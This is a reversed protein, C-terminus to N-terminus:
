WNQLLDRRADLYALTPLYNGHTAVQAMYSDPEMELALRDLNNVDASYSYGPFGLYDTRRWLNVWVPQPRPTLVFDGLPIALLETLPIAADSPTHRRSGNSAGNSGAAKLTQVRARTPGDAPPLDKGAWPDAKWFSPAAVGPTGLVEPGFLEPFFRGFYPRLQMGFTLFRIRRALDARGLGALHFLAAVGLVTGLSHTALLVRRHNYEGATGEPELWRIMRDALEPVAREGYCAPGFPHAARPLWAMLDWLLGLPRGKDPTAANGVATGVVALGGLLVTVLIVGQLWQWATAVGDAGLADALAGRVSAWRGGPRRDQWMLALALSATVGIGVTWSVSHLLPEARQMFASMRRQANIEKVFQEESAAIQPTPIVSDRLRLAGALVFFLVVLVALLALVGGFAWFVIPVSIDHARAPLSVDRFLPDGPVTRSEFRGARLYSGVGLTLASALFAAVLLGLFMFVGPAAGHWAAERRRPDRRRMELFPLLVAFGAVVFLAVGGVNAGWGFRDLAGSFALSLGAAGVALVGAAVWENYGARVVCGATALVTLAVLIVTPIIQGGGFAGSLATGPGFVELWLCWGYAAVALVLLIWSWVDRSKTPPADSPPRVSRSWVAVVAASALLHASAVGFVIAPAAGDHPIADWMLIVVVLDVSAAIHLIGTPSNIRRRTWLAPVALPFADARAPARKARRDDSIRTRFRVDTVLGLLAVALVAALPALSLLALRQGRTWAGLADFQGPLASCVRWSGSADPLGFCQVAVLDFAVSAVSATLLLTLGLAFLRVVGGGSGTRLGGERKPDAVFARAWYGANAFGFPAVIFWLLNYVTRWVGKLFTRGATFRDLHGWTYAEVRTPADPDADKVTYFGALQDALPIAGDRAVEVEGVPVGLMEQPPTNRVGHVRLELVECARASPTSPGGSM